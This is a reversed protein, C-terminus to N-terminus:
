QDHELAPKVGGLQIIAGVGAAADRHIAVVVVAHGLGVEQDDKHEEYDVQHHDQM